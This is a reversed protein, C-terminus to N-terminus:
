YIVPIAIVPEAGQHRLHITYREAELETCHLITIFKGQEIAHHITNLDAEPIGIKHVTSTLETLVAAAAMVSVGIIAGILAGVVAGAIPDAAVVDQFIFMSSATALLGWLAGWIM